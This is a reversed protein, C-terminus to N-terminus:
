SAYGNVFLGYTLGGDIHLFRFILLWTEQVSKCMEKDTVFM